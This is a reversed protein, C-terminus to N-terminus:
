GLSKEMCISEVVNEYPPFNPIQHYGAKTYAAIAEPQKVGTELKALQFGESLALNELYKLLSRAIGKGREEPVTYMRKIEITKPYKMPRYCGCAIPRDARYAVVIRANEDVKNFPEFNQQTDPYRVWFERDLEAILSVFDPNKFDVRRILIEPHGM